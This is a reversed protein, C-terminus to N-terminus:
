ELEKMPSTEPIDAVPADYGITEDAELHPNQDVQPTALM